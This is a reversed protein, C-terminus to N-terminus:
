VEKIRLCFALIVTILYEFFQQVSLHVLIVNHFKILGQVRSWQPPVLKGAQLQLLQTKLM